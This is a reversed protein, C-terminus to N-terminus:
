FQIWSFLIKEFKNYFLTTNIKKAEVSIRFHFLFMATFWLPRVEENENHVFWGNDQLLIDSIITEDVRSSDYVQSHVRNIAQLM